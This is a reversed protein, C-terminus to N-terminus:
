KIISLLEVEFILMSYPPISGSGQEGYALAAPIAFRYVSGTTMLPIGETWGRIVQNLPFQVPEGRDYSSDFVTGDILTGKYNVEVMDEASPRPGTGERIVEYQLGSPTTVVGSKAGNQALYETENQKNKEMLREVAATIVAQIKGYAEEVPFRPTNGEVIDRFGKILEDYDYSLKIQNLDGMLALILGFSYSTDADVTDEQAAPKQVSTEAAAADTNKDSKGGASCAFLVVTAMFVIFVVRKIMKKDM